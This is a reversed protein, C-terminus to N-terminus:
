LHGSFPVGGVNMGSCDNMGASLQCGVHHNTGVRNDIFLYFNSFAAPNVSVGM